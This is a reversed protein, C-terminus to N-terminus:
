GGLIRINFDGGGFKIANPPPAKWLHTPWSGPAGTFPIPAKILIFMLSSKDREPMHCHLSFNATQLESSPGRWFRVMSVGQNGAELVELQDVVM